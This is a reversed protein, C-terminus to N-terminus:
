DESEREGQWPRSRLGCVTKELSAGEEDSGGFSGVARPPEEIGEGPSVRLRGGGPPRLGGEGRVGEEM